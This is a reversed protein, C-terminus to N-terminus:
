RNKWKGIHKRETWSIVIDESKGDYDWLKQGDLKLKIYSIEQTDLSTPGDVEMPIDSSVTMNLVEKSTDNQMDLKIEKTETIKMTEEITEYQSLQKDKNFFKM